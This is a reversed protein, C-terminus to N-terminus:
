THCNLGVALYDQYKAFIEQVQFDWTIEEDSVPIDYNLHTRAFAQIGADKGVEHWEGAPTIIAYPVIKPLNRVRCPYRIIQGSETLEGDLHTYSDWKGDPNITSLRYSGHEDTGIVEDEDWDLRLKAIEELNKSPVEWDLALRDLDERSLLSLQKVEEELAILDLYERYPEVELESYYPYLLDKVKNEINDPSPSLLVVVTFHAM